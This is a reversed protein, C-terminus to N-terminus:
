SEDDRGVGGGVFIGLLFGIAAAISLTVGMHRRAGRASAAALDVPVARALEWLYAEVQGLLVDSDTVPPPRRAGERPPPPPPPVASPAPAPAPGAEMQELREAVLVLEALQLRLLAKTHDTHEGLVDVLADLDAGAGQVAAAPVSPYEELILAHLRAPNPAASM